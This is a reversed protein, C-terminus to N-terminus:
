WAVGRRMTEFVGVWVDPDEPRPATWPVGERMAAVEAVQGRMFARYFTIFDEEGNGGRAYGHAEAGHTGTLGYYYGLRSAQFSEYDHLMEHLLYVNPTAASSGHVMGNQFAVMLQTGWFCCPPHKVPSGAATLESYLYVISDFRQELDTLKTDRLLRQIDPPSDDAAGRYLATTGVIPLVTVDWRTLGYSFPVVYASSTAEAQGHLTDIDAQTLVGTDAAATSGHYTTRIPLIAVRTVHTDTVPSAATPTVVLPSTGLAVRQEYFQGAYTGPSGEGIGVGVRYDGAPLDFTTPVSKGTYADDLYIRGGAPGAITLQTAPPLSPMSISYKRDFVLGVRQDTGDCPANQCREEILTRGDVSIDAAYNSAGDINFAQLRVTNSGAVFWDTVDIADVKSKAVVDRRVGDVTIYVFDDSPEVTLSVNRVAETVLALATGNPESEVRAACAGLTLVCLISSSRSM